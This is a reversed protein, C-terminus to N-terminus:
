LKFRSYNRLINRSLGKLKDKFLSCAARLDEIEIGFKEFIQDEVMAINRRNVMPDEDPILESLLKMELEMIEKVLEEAVSDPVRGNTLALKLNEMESKAEMKNLFENHAREFLNRSIKQDSIVENSTNEWIKREIVMFKGVIVEYQNLDNKHQRRAETFDKKNNRLREILLSNIKKLVTLYEELSLPEERQKPEEPLEVVKAQSSTSHPTRTPSPHRVQAAPKKPAQKAEEEMPVPQILYYVGIAAAALAVGAIVKRKDM